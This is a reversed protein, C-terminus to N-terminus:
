QFLGKERAEYIIKAMDGRTFLDMTKANEQTIIGQEILMNTAQEWDFDTTDAARLVFTAFQKDTVLENPAFKNDGVGQTIGREAAINAYKVGWHDNSVDAFRSANETPANELGLARVLLTAAEIRTLPKLLDLGKENGNLLGDTQLAQAEAEYTPKTTLFVEPQIMGIPSEGRNTAVQEETPPETFKEVMEEPAYLVFREVDILWLRSPEVSGGIRYTGLKILYENQYGEIYLMAVPQSVFKINNIHNEGIELLLKEIRDYDSIFKFAEEDMILPSGLTSISGDLNFASGRWLSSPPNTPNYWWYTAPAQWWYTSDDILYKFSGSEAYQAMYKNSNLSYYKCGYDFDVMNQAMYREYLEEDTKGDTRGLYKTGPLYSNYFDANLEASRKEEMSQRFESPENKLFLGDMNEVFGPIHNDAAHAITLATLVSVLVLASVMIAIIKKM